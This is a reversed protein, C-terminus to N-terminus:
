LQTKPASARAAAGSSPIACARRRRRRPAVAAPPAVRVADTGVAGCGLRDGEVAGVHGIPDVLDAGLEGPTVQAAPARGIARAM